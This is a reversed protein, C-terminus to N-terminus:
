PRGAHAALFDLGATNLTVVRITEGFEILQEHAPDYRPVTVAPTSPSGSTAYAVLVDSM